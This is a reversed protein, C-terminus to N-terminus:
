SLQQREIRQVTAFSAAHSFIKFGTYRDPNTEILKRGIVEAKSETDDGDHYEFDDRGAACAMQILFKCM